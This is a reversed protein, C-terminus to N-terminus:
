PDCHTYAGCGLDKPSGERDPGCPGKGPPGPVAPPAGGVFLWAATAKGDGAAALDLTAQVAGSKTDQVVVKKGDASRIWIEFHRHDYYALDGTVGDDGVHGARATCRGAPRIARSAFARDGAHGGASPRGPWGPTSRRSCRASRMWRLPM